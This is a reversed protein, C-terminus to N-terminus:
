IESFPVRFRAAAQAAVVSASRIYDSEAAKYQQYCLYLSFCCFLFVETLVYLSKMHVHNIAKTDKCLSEQAELLWQAAANVIKLQLFVFFRDVRASGIQPTM